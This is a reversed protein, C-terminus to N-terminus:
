IIGEKIIIYPYGQVDICYNDKIINNLRVKILKHKQLIYPIAKKIQKEKYAKQGQFYLSVQELIEQETVWGKENIEKLCITEMINTTKINLDSLQDGKLQPYVRNAEENGLTRQIMERSWGRMTFHNEKFEISKEQSFNLINDSYSPISFFSVRNIDKGEKRDEQSLVKNRLENRRREAEILLNPPIEEDKLKFLLGLYTFLGVRDAIRRHDGSLGKKDGILNGLYRLSAYFLAENEFEDYHEPPLTIKAVEHIIILEPFYRKTLKYIEPYEEKFEDSM